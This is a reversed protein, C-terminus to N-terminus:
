GEEEREVEEHIRESLFGPRIEELNWLANGCRLCEIGLLDGKAFVRIYDDGCNHCLVRFEFYGM